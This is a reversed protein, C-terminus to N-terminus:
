KVLELCVLAEAAAIETEMTGRQSPDFYRADFCEEPSSAQWGANTYLFYAERFSAPQFVDLLKRVMVADFIQLWGLNQPRGFPLTLYLV